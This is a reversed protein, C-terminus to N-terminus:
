GGLNGEKMEKELDEIYMNFLIPSLPCGQKMERDTRFKRTREKLTIVESTTERYISKIMDLMWKNGNTEVEGEDEM